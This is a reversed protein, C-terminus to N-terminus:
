FFASFDGEGSSRIRLVPEGAQLIASISTDIDKM